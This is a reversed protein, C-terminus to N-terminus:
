EPDGPVEEQHDAWYLAETALGGLEKIKKDMIKDWVCVTKNALDLNCCCKKPLWIQQIEGESDAVAILLAGETSSHKKTSTLFEEFPIVLSDALRNANTEIKCVNCLLPTPTDAPEDDFSSFAELEGDTFDLPQNLGDEISDRHMKNSEELTLPTPNAYRVPRTNPIPIIYKGTYM